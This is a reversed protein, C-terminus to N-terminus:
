ASRRAFDTPQTQRAIALLGRCVAAEADLCTVAAGAEALAREYLRAMRGSAVLTIPRDTTGPPLAAAIEAGILLGSLRASAAAPALGALLAAARIPFLGSMPHGAPDLARRLAELFAPDEPDVASDAGAVSHRLISQGSLVAYLEGTLHTAFGAVRRDQMEVWKSHTGPLCIRASGSADQPTVGILITEEGRMVDPAAADRKALGPVIRVDRAIGPVPVVARAVADLEAPVEVYPAEVWGQRSGAMGCVLVPLADPASVAQLHHQLITEFGAERGAELGEDGESRALVKGDCALLWLRFRSTGWDVAALM